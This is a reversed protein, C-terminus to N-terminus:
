FQCSVRSKRLINTTPGSFHWGEFIKFNWLNFSFNLVLSGKLSLYIYIPKLQPRIWCLLKRLVINILIIFFSISKSELKFFKKNVNVSCHVTRVSCYLTDAVSWTTEIGTSVLIILYDSILNFTDNCFHFKLHFCDPQQHNTQKDSTYPDRLLLSEYSSM